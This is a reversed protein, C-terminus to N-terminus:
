FVLDTSNSQIILSSKQFQKSNALNVKDSQHNIILGTARPLFNSLFTCKTFLVKANTGSLIIGATAVNEKFLVKEIHISAFYNNSQSQMFSVFVSQEGPDIIKNRVFKSDYMRVTSNGNLFVGLQPCFNDVFTMNMIFLISNHLVVSMIVGECSVGGNSAFMSHKCTILASGAIFITKAGVNEKFICTDLTVFHITSTPLQVFLCSVQGASNGNFHTNKIDITNSTTSRVFLTLVGYYNRETPLYLKNHVFMVNTISLSLWSNKRNNNVVHVIGGLYASNERFCDNHFSITTNGSTSLLLAGGSRLASNRLFLGDRIIAMLKEAAVSVVGGHRWSVSHSFSSNIIGLLVFFNKALNLSQTQANQRSEIYVTGGSNSSSINYIICNQITITSNPAVISVVGGSGINSGNHFSSDKILLFCDDSQFLDIIGGRPTASYFEDVHTNSINFEASLGTM